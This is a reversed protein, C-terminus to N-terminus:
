GVLQVQKETHDRLHVKAWTVPLHLAVVQHVGHGVGPRAGPAPRRGFIAVWAGALDSCPEAKVAFFIQLIPPKELPDTM